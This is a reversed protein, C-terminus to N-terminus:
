YNPAWVCDNLGCKSANYDLGIDSGGAKPVDFFSTLSWVVGPEIYKRERVKDLKDRVL